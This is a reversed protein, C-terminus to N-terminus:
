ALNPRPKGMMRCARTQLHCAACWAPSLSSCRIAAHPPLLSRSPLRAPLHLVGRVEYEPSPTTSELFGEPLHRWYSSCPSRERAPLHLVGRVEDVGKSARLQPVVAGPRVQGAAEAGGRDVVHVRLDLAAATPFHKLSNCKYCVLMRAQAGGRDHVHVRLDL